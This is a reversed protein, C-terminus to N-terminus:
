ETIERGFRRHPEEDKYDLCLAYMVMNIGLRFAKERQRDGGPEVPLEWNGLNDRAWAGGLDHHTVIAALRDGVTYGTLHEPGAIRGVPRDIQYFARFLVHDGPINKAEVGPLASEILGTAAPAFGHDEGKADLAPDVILTGGLQFYRSLASVAVDDWATFPRDGSLYSLPSRSLSRISPKVDVPELAANVATRKHVEWLLRRLATPRPHWNGGSYVLQMAQVQSAAGVAQLGGPCLCGAAALSLTHLFTRRNAQM